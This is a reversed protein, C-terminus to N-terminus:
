KKIKAQLVVTTKKPPQHNISRLQINTRVLVEQHESQLGAIAEMVRITSSWWSLVMLQSRRISRQTKM